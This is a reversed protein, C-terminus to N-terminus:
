PAAEPHHRLIGLRKWLGLITEQLTAFDLEAAGPRAVVVVDWAVDMEPRHTRFIERLRRRLRNRRVAKGVKRSITM